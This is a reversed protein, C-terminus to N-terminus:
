SVASLMKRSERRGDRHTIEVEIKRESNELVANEVRREGTSLMEDRRSTGFRVEGDSTLERYLSVTSLKQFRNERVMRIGDERRRECCLEFGGKSSHEQMRFVLKGQEYLQETLTYGSQSRTKLRVTRRGRWELEEQVTGDTLGILRAKGLSCNLTVTGDIEQTATVTARATSLRLSAGELNARIQMPGGGLWNRLAACERLEPSLDSERLKLPSQLQQQRYTIFAQLLQEREQRYREKILRTSNDREREASEQEAIYGCTKLFFHHEARALAVRRSTEDHLGSFLHYNREAEQIQPLLKLYDAVLTQETTLTTPACDLGLVKRIQALRMRAERMEPSSPCHTQQLVRLRSQLERLKCLHPALSTSALRAGLVNARASLRQLPERLESGATEILHREREYEALQSRYREGSHKELRQLRQTYVQEVEALDASERAKLSDLLPQCQPDLGDRALMLAHQASQYHAALETRVTPSLLFIKPGSGKGAVGGSPYPLSATSQRLAFSM